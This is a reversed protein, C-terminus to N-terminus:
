QVSGPQTTPVIVVADVIEDLRSTPTGNGGIGVQRQLETNPLNARAQAFAGAAADAAAVLIAGFAAGPKEAM